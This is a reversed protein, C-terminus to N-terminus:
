KKKITDLNHVRTRESVDLVASKMKEISEIDLDLASDEKELEKIQSEFDTVEKKLRKIQENLEDVKSQKISKDGSIVEKRSQMKGIAEQLIDNRNFTSLTVQQEQSPIVEINPEQFSIPAQTTEVQSIVGVDDTNVVEDSFLNMDSITDLTETQTKGFLDIDSTSDSTDFNFIDDTMTSSATDTLSLTNEFSEQSVSTNLNMVPETTSEPKLADFSFDILSTDSSTDDGIIILDEDSQITTNSM